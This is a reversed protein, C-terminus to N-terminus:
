LKQLAPRTTQEWCRTVIAGNGTDECLVIDKGDYNEILRPHIDRGSCDPSTDMHAIFGIVPVNETNAPLTAYVYGHQDMTVEQMGIAQLEDHLYQALILQKDTSPCKTDNDESSQTDYSIYKLFRDTLEHNM